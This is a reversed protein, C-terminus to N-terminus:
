PRHRLLLEGQRPPLTFPFVYVTGDLPLRLLFSEQTKWKSLWKNKTNFFIWGEVEQNGEDLVTEHLSNRALFEIFESTEKQYARLYTQDAIGPAPRNPRPLSAQRDMEDTTDQLQQALASPDLAPQVVHFHSVFELSAGESSVKWYRRGRNRIHVLVAFVAAHRLRSKTLEQSDVTIAIDKDASQLTYVYRGDATASFSTGPGEQTWRLTASSIEKKHAFAPFAGCLTLALLLWRVSSSNYSRGM